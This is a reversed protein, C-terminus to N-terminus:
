RALVTRDIDWEGLLAYELSGFKAYVRVHADRFQSHELMVARPEPSTYGLNSRLTLVDSAAGPALEDAGIATRFATGWDEEDGRLRFVANLQVNRARLATDATNRLRFRITPVLKNQENVVGEDFWGTTLDTVELAETVQLRPGGCSVLMLLASAALSLLSVHPM